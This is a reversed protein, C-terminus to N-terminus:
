IHRIGVARASRSITTYFPQVARRAHKGPISSRTTLDRLHASGVACNTEAKGKADIGGEDPRTTWRHLGTDASTFVTGGTEENLPPLFGHQAYEMSKAM